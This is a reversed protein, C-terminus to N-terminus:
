AHIGHIDISNSYLQCNWYQCKSLYKMKYVLVTTLSSVNLM